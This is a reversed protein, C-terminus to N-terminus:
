FEGGFPPKVYVGHHHHPTTEEVSAAEVEPDVPAEDVEDAVVALPTSKTIVRKTTRRVFARRPYPTDKDALATGAGDTISVRLGEAGDSDGEIIERMRGIFTQLAFGDVKETPWEFNLWGSADDSPRLTPVSAVIGALGDSLETRKRGGGGVSAARPPAFGFGVGFAVM